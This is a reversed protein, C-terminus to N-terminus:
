GNKVWTDLDSEMPGTVQIMRGGVEEIFVPKILSDSKMQLLHHDEVVKVGKTKRVVRFAYLALPSYNHM